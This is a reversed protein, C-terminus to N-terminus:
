GLDPVAKADFYDIAPQIAEATSVRAPNWGSIVRLVREAEALDGGGSTETLGLIKRAEDHSILDNARLLVIEHANM